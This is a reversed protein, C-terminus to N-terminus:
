KAALTVVQVKSNRQAGPVTKGEYLVGNIRGSIINSHLPTATTSIYVVSGSETNETLANGDLRPDEVSITTPAGLENSGPAVPTTFMFVVEARPSVSVINFTLSARVDANQPIAIQPATTGGCGVLFLVLSALVITKM